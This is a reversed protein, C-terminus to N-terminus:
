YFCITILGSQLLHLLLTSVVIIIEIDNDSVLPVGSDMSAAKTGADVVTM